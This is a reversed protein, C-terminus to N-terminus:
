PLENIHTQNSHSLADCIGGDPLLIRFSINQKGETFSGSSWPTLTSIGIQIPM